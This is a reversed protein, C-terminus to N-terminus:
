IYYFPCPTSTSSDWMVSVNKVLHPRV